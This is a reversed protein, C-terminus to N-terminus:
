TPEIGMGAVLLLLPPMMIYYGIYYMTFFSPFFPPDLFCPRLLRGTSWTVEWYARPLIVKSCYLLLFFWFYHKIHYKPCDNYHNRSTKYYLKHFFYQVIPRRPIELMNYFMNIAIAPSILLGINADNNKSVNYFMSEFSRKSTITRYTSLRATATNCDKLWPQLSYLHVGKRYPNRKRLFGCGM